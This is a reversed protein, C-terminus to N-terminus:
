SLAHCCHICTILTRGGALLLVLTNIFTVINSCKIVTKQCPLIYQELGMIMVLKM